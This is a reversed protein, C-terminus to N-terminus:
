SVARGELRWRGSHSNAPARPGNCVACPLAAPSASTNAPAAAPAQTPLDAHAALPFMKVAQTVGVPSQETSVACAFLCFHGEQLALFRDSGLATPRPGNKM